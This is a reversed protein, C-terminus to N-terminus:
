SANLSAPLPPLSKPAIKVVSYDRTHHTHKSLSLMLPHQKTPM